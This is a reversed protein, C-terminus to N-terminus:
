SGMLLQKFLFDGEEMQMRTCLPKPAWALAATETKLDDRVTMLCRGAINHGVIEKKEVDIRGSKFSTETADANYSLIYMPDTSLLLSAQETGLAFKAKLIIRWVAITQKADLSRKLCLNWYDMAVSEEVQAAMRAVSGCRLGNQPLWSRLDQSLGGGKEVPWHALVGDDDFRGYAEMQVASYLDCARMAQYAHEATRYVGVRGQMFPQVLANDRPWEIVFCAGDIEYESCLFANHEANFQIYATMDCSYPLCIQVFM